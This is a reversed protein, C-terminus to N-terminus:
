EDRRVPYKRRYTARDLERKSSTPTWDALWAKMSALGESQVKKITADVPANRTLLDSYHYGDGVAVPQSPTSQVDVGDASVTAERWPDGLFFLVLRFAM